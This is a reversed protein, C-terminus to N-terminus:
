LLSRKKKKFTMIPGRGGGMGLDHQHNFGLITNTRSDVGLDSIPTQNLYTLLNPM